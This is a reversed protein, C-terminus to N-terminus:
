VEGPWGPDVLSLLILTPDKGVATVRDQAYRCLQPESPMSFVKNEIVLPAYHPYEIVLDLNKYERRVRTSVTAPDPRLWPALITAGKDAYRDCLWGLLNSHFLEKSGLSMHWFPEGDLGRALATLQRVLSQARGHATRANGTQM